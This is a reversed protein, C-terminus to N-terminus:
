ATSLEISSWLWEGGAAEEQGVKVMLVKKAGRERAMKGAEKLTPTASLFEGSHFVAYMGGYKEHLTGKMREYANNNADSETEVAKDSQELWRRVADQVAASVKSGTLAASAKLRRYLERDLRRIIVDMIINYTVNIYLPHM